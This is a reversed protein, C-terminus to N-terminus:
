SPLPARMAASAARRVPRMPSMTAVIWASCSRMMRAGCARSGPPRPRGPTRCSRPRGAGPRRGARCAGRGSRACRRAPPRARVRQEQAVDALDQGPEPLGAGDQGGGPLQVGRHLGIGLDRVGDRDDLAVQPHGVDHGRRDAVALPDRVRGPLERDLPRPDGQGGPMTAAARSRARAERLGCLRARSVNTVESSSRRACTRASARPTSGSELRSIRSASRRSLGSTRRSTFRHQIGSVGSCTM